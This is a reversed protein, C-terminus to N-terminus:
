VEKLNLLVVLSIVSAVLGLVGRLNLSFQITQIYMSLVFSWLLALAALGFPVNAEPLRIVTAVVGFGMYCVCAELILVVGILFSNRGFFRTM